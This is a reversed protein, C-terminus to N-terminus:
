QWRGRQRYQRPQRMQGDFLGVTPSNQVGAFGLRELFEQHDRVAHGEVLNM